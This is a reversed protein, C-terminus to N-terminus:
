AKTREIARWEKAFLSLRGRRALDAMHPISALASPESPMSRLQGPYAWGPIDLEDSGNHAFEDLM